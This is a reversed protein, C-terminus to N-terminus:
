GLGRLLKSINLLNNMNSKVGLRSLHLTFYKEGLENVMCMTHLDWPFSIRARNSLRFWSRTLASKTIYAIAAATFM